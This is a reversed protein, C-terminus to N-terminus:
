AAVQLLMDYCWGGVIWSFLNALASTLTARKLTIPQVLTFYVGTELVFVVLEGQFINMACRSAPLMVFCLLPHSILSSAFAASWTSSCTRSRAGKM